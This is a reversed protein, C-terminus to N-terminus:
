IEYFLKFHPAAYQFNGHGHGWYVYTPSSITNILQLVHVCPAYIINSMDMYIREHYLVVLHVILCHVGNHKGTNKAKNM